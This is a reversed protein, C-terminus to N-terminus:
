DQAHRTHSSRTVAAKRMVSCRRGGATRQMPQNPLVELAWPAPAGCKRRM